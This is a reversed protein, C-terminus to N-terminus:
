DGIVDDIYTYIKELNEDVPSTPSFVIVAKGTYEEGETSYLMYLNTLVYNFKNLTESTYTVNMTVKTGAKIKLPLSYETNLDDNLFVSVKVDLGAGAKIEKLTVNEKAQFCYLAPDGSNIISSAFENAFMSFVLKGSFMDNGEGARYKLPEDFTIKKSEGNLKLVMASITCEAANDGNKCELMWDSCYLERYPIDGYMDLSNNIVTVDFSNSGFGEGEFGVFEVTQMKEKTFFAIDFCLVDGSSVDIRIYESNDYYDNIKKSCGTVATLLIMLVVIIFSRIKRM